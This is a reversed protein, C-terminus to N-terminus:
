HLKCVFVLYEILRIYKSLVNHLLCNFLLQHIRHNTFLYIYKVNKKAVKVETPLTNGILNYLADSFFSATDRKIKLLFLLRNKKILQLESNNM